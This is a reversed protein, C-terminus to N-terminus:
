IKSDGAIQNQAPTLYFDAWQGPKFSFPKALHSADFIYSKILPTEDRKEILPLSVAISFNITIM